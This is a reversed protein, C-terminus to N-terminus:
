STPHVSSSACVGSNIAIGIFDIQINASFVYAEVPSSQGCAIGGAPIVSQGTSLTKIAGYAANATWTSSAQAGASGAAPAGGPVAGAAYGPSGVYSAAATAGAQAALQAAHQAQTHDQYVVGLGTVFMFLAIFVPLMFLVWVFLAQGSEDCIFHKKM